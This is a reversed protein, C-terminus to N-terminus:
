KNLNYFWYTCLETSKEIDNYITSFNCCTREFPLADEKSWKSCMYTNHCSGMLANSRELGYCESAIQLTDDCCVCVIPSVLQMIVRCARRGVQWTDIFGILDGVDEISEIDALIERFDKNKALNARIALIIEVRENYYEIGRETVPNAFLEKTFDSSTM